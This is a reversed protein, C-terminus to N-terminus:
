KRGNDRVARTGDTQIIKYNTTRSLSVYISDYTRRDSNADGMGGTYKNIIHNAISQVRERKCRYYRLLLYYKTWLTTCTM